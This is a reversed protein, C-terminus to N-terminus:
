CLSHTTHYPPVVCPILPLFYLRVFNFQLRLSYHAALLEQLYHLHNVIFTRRYVNAWCQPPSNLSAAAIRYARQLAVKAASASTFYKLQKYNRFCELHAANLAAFHSVFVFFSYVLSYLAAVRAM